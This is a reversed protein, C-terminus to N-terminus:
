QVKAASLCGHRNRGDAAGCLQLYLQRKYVDRVFVSPVAFLLVDKGTCVEEISKTFQLEEPIKLIHILSLARTAAYVNGHQIFQQQSRQVCCLKCRQLARAGQWVAHQIQRKYVDLHTYSVPEPM